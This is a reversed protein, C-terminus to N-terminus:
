QIMAITTQSVQDFTTIAKANASYAQQAVILKSFEKSIDVNSQELTGGIITGRGGTDANGVVANGSANSAQFSNNGINSLGDVNAFTAVAVQGLSLTKGSTFTGEITGNSDITYSSLTGSAYGDQNTASTASATATQTLTTNGNGDTLNWNMSMSAAGDSFTAGSPPLTIAIHNGSTTNLHGSSDFNLSGSALETNGSGGTSLDASPVSVSYSWTNVGTKSYNVSLTHAEGLSDYVSFTSAPASDGVSANSSLNATIQFNSTTVAPTTQGGVQLPQMAAATSVVGGVAPFGLLLDGEPTVLQGAKNTSFDGARTYDQVGSADRTVFFGNGSLAMNSAKGTQSLSGETLDSDLASVKVGSGIQLPDGSGNTVIAYASAFLDSFNATQDKYGITNINALNNSVSDLQQQAATLGSLPIAFSM